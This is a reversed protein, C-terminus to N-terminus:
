IVQAPGTVEAQRDRLAVQRRGLAQSGLEAFVQAQHCVQAEMTAM